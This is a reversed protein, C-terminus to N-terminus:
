WGQEEMIEEIGNLIKSVHEVMKADTDSEARAQASMKKAQYFEEDSAYRCVTEVMEEYDQVVFDEGVNNAVDCDPLSVVPIGEMLAMEGSFGGGQRKPNMYLDLISYVDMLDDRYGLYYIHNEFVEKDFFAKITGVEGIFVFAADPIKEIIEQMVSVFEADIEMDLRNGVIAILFQDDPLDVEARSYNNQSKEAIVPIKEDMFLRVQRGGIAEEYEKETEEDKEGYQILIQGESVPCGVAFNMSALTTFGAVLDVVANVTSLDLVFYPNWAHILSLMMHYEKLSEQGLSIQYGCLEADRCQIRLPINEFEQARRSGVRHCWLAQTMNEANCPCVFLLVEYQLCKQLVYAFNYVIRSPAHVINLLQDTVLVIRKKNRTRVPHYSFDTMLVNEYSNRNKKHLLRKLAYCDGVHKAVNYELISGTAYDFDEKLINTLVDERFDKLKMYQIMYSLVYIGDTGQLQTTLTNRIFRQEAETFGNYENELQAFADRKEKTDTEDM